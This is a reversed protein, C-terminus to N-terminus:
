AHVFLMKKLDIFEDRGHGLGDRAGCFAALSWAFFVFDLTPWLKRWLLCMGKRVVEVNSLVSASTRVLLRDALLVFVYEAARNLLTALDVTPYVQDGTYSFGVRVGLYTSLILVHTMKFM